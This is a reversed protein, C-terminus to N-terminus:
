VPNKGIKTFNVVLKPIKGSFAPVAADRLCGFIRQCAKRAGDLEGAGTGQGVYDIFIRPNNPLIQPWEFLGARM